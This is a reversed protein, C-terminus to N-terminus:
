RILPLNSGFLLLIVLFFPTSAPVGDSWTRLPFVLRFLSPASLLRPVSCFSFPTVSLLLYISSVLDIVDCCFFFYLFILLPIGLHFVTFCFFENCPPCSHPFRLWKLTSPNPSLCRGLSGFYVGLLFLVLPLLLLNDFSGTSFRHIAPSFHGSVYRTV